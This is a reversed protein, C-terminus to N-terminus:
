RWPVPIEEDQLQQMYTLGLDTRMPYRLRQDSDSYFSYPPRGRGIFLTEAAVGMTISWAKQGDDWSDSTQVVQMLGGWLAYPADLPQRNDDFFQFFLTIPKNFYETPDAESETEAQSTVGSITFTAQPAQGNIAQEIGSVSGLNRLGVWTAGGSTLPYNGNWLWMTESAFEAKVLFAARVARGSLAEARAGPFFGM